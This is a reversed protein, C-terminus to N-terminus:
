GVEMGLMKAVVKDPTTDSRDCDLVKRGHRLVVVRDAVELVQPIAHSVIIVASGSRAIGRALELVMASQKIGLAATPEDMFLVRDSWHSAKAIAVSQRQGGSLRAVPSGVLRDVQLGMQGLVREVESRMAARNLPALSRLMRARVLERGLFFNSAIDCTTDLALDQWATAVGHRQAVKPNWPSVRAGDFVIEGDDIPSAGSMAKVLTSKGAGNDGLLAVIEGPYLALSVADLAALNGFRKELRRGELVPPQGAPDHGSEQTMEREQVHLDL